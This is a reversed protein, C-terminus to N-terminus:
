YSALTSYPSSTNVLCTEGDRKSGLPDLSRYAATCKRSSSSMFICPFVIITSNRVGCTVRLLLTTPTVVNMLGKASLTSESLPAASDNLVM